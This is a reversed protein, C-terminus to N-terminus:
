AAHANAARSDGHSEGGQRITVLQLAVLHSCKGKMERCTCRWQQNTPDYGLDYMEGSDGRCQAVILGTHQDVRRVVLRGEILLARGKEAASRRGPL